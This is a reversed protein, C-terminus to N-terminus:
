LRRTVKFKYKELNKLEDIFENYGRVRGAKVDDEAERIAKLTEEDGLVGLTEM